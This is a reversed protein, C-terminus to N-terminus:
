RREQRREEVGQPAESIAREEEAKGREETKACNYKQSRTRKKKGNEESKGKASKKSEREADKDRFLKEIEQVLKAVERMITKHISWNDLGKTPTRTSRNVVQHQRLEQWCMPVYGGRM